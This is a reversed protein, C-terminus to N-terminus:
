CAGGKANFPVEMPYKGSFCADCYDRKEDGLIKSLNELSLYGLSDAGIIKCTEEITHNVAILADQSPIDTGFYCPYLFPPCSIRMHVETAGAEKLMTVLKACTTGRVISDDVMVIRKGAVSDKLVNLKLRVASTRESQTPQIFTRGVYRNIILGRGYPIGSADAYGIASDIGSDPVGIVMDAEVPYEEALIRGTNRRAENVSSGNIVSDSRAFYIYEFVCIKSKGICNDRISRIGSKEIVVIEGPEIDRIYEARVTDLACTESAVVYSNGIKGLCLPRMGYPDRVAILKKASMVLLSYSGKVVKMMGSISEEV